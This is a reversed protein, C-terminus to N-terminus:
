KPGRFQENQFNAKRAKQHESELNECDVPFQSSDHHGKIQM